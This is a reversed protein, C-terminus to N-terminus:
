SKKKYKTIFQWFLEAFPSLKRNKLKILYINRKYTPNISKVVVQNDQIGNTYGKMLISVCNGNAVLSIANEPRICTFYIQPTFGATICTQMSIDYIPTRQDMFCFKENKLDGLNIESTNALPHKKPLVIVLEDEAFKYKDVNIDLFGEGWFAIEFKYTDLANIIDHDNYEVINFDLNEHLKSFASVLDIIHYNYMVPLAGISFKNQKIINFNTIHSQMSEHQSIIEEVFPIIQRGIESLKIYRTTRDFLQVNLENELSKIQKSLASQSIFLNEAAITFNYTKSIEYFSKLHKINMNAEM